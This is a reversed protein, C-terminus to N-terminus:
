STLSDPADKGMREVVEYLEHLEFPKTLCLIDEREIFARTRLSMTDGTIFIIRKALEPHNKSIEWHFGPGNVGPM